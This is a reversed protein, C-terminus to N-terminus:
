MKLLNQLKTQILLMLLKKTSDSATQVICSLRQSHGGSGSMGQEFLTLCTQFRCAM